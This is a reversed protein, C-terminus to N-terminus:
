KKKFLNNLKDKATEVTKKVNENESVKEIVKAAQEQAKETVKAKADGLIISKAADLDLSVSPKTVKGSLVVGIPLDSGETNVASSPVGVTGLLSAIEKREVPINFNFAMTQDLGQKGSITVEKGLMKSKFPDVVINGDVIKFTLSIDKLTMDKYKDNKLVTAMADQFKAGKIEINESKLKGAGNVSSIVPSFDDGIKSEFNMDITVQGYANKAVPLLSDVSSFSNTLANVDVKTMKVAMDVFPNKEDNTNYQGNLGFQGKCADMTLGSLKAIGDRVVVNGVVNNLTLKDYLVNKLNTTMTFDINKPVLVVSLTDATAATAATDATAETTADDSLFENCDINDSALSLNGKITGDKLAYALYNELRGAVAFDSKRVQCNLNDLSLFRPTFQMNADSIQVGQPFDSSKFEFKNLSLRGDASINEYNESEITKMDAALVLNAKIIGAITMSDLPLAEKLSNLDITGNVGAKFTANSIPTVVSLSADFPNSGLEFHFKDLNVTTLDASGGPNNIKLDINIDNLSKPLDPYQIKGNNVNFVMDIAPVHEMDVYEGNLNAYLEMTGDAKLGPVDKLFEEPVLALITKFQTESAGLKMDLLYTSDKLEVWGDFALPVGSFNLTNDKFTYRNAAMDAEINADFDVTSGNLYKIGDFEVNLQAIQLAIGLITKDLTLDGEVNLNIGNVRADINMTSDIYAVSANNLAFKNLKLSFSSSTTDADAAEEEAVEDSPKVIDWNATSDATVIGNFILNDVEISNISISGSIASLIDVDAYLRDVSLLTDNEFKEKGVVSLEELGVQLDPFSSILSLSFSGYDVTADLMNNVEKKVLKEIPGKLLMPVVFLLILIVALVIGVIKITKKM